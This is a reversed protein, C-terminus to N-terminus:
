HAVLIPCQNIRALHLLSLYDIEKAPINASEIAKKAAEYGMNETGGIFNDDDDFEGDYFHRHSIGTVQKVWFDFIEEDSLDEVKVGKKFLTNKAREKKFFHKMVTKSFLEQNSMVKRPLYSGTGIIEATVM